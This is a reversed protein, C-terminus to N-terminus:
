DLCKDSIRYTLCFKSFSLEDDSEDRFKEYRKIKNHMIKYTQSKPHVYSFILNLIEFAINNNM